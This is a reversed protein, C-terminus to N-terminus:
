VAKVGIFNFDRCIVCIQGTVPLLPKTDSVSFTGDPNRGQFTFSTSGGINHSASGLSALLLQLLLASFMIGEIVETQLSEAVLM